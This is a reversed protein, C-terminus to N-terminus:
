VWVGYMLEGDILKGTDQFSIGMTRVEWRPREEVAKLLVGFFPTFPLKQGILLWWGAHCGALQDGGEGGDHWAYINM